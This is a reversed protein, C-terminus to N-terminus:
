PSPKCTLGPLILSDKLKEIRIRTYQSSFYQDLMPIITCSTVVIPIFQLVRIDHWMYQLDPLQAVVIQNLKRLLDGTPHCIQFGFPYPRYRNQLIRPVQVISDIM